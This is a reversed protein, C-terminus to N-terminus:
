SQATGASVVQGVAAAAAVVEAQGRNLQETTPVSM